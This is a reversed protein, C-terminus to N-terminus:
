ADAPRDETPPNLISNVRTWVERRTLVTTVLDDALRALAARDRIANAEAALLRSTVARLTDLETDHAHEWCTWAAAQGALLTALIAQAATPPVVLLWAHLEEATPRRDSPWPQPPLPLDHAALAAVHERTLAPPRSIPPSVTM